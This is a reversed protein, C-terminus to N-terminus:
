SPERDEIEVLRHALIAAIASRNPGPFQGALVRYWGEVREERTQPPLGFSARLDDASM